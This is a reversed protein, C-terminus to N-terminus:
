LEIELKPISETLKFARFGCKEVKCYIKIESEIKNDLQKQIDDLEKCIIKSGTTVYIEKNEYIAKIKYYSKNPNFSSEKIKEFKLICIEQNELDKLTYKNCVTKLSYEEPNILESIRFTDKIGGIKIPPKTKYDFDSEEM